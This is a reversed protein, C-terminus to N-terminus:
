MPKSATRIPPVLADGASLTATIHGIKIDTHILVPIHRVDDTLWLTVDGKDMFIGEYRVMAKAKVTNFTGLPTTVQERGLVKIELEWNKKSAHVDIFVSEGVELPYLTRFYYLSSLADQVRPPVLFTEVKNNKIQIARHRIQDFDIVKDKKKRGQRQKVRLTHSYGEEVDIFTEVRDNVPYFLDVFDNSRVTSRIHYAERGKMKTTELVEM